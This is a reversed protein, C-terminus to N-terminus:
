IATRSEFLSTKIRIKLNFFSIFNVECCETILCIKMEYDQMHFFHEYYQVVNENNIKKMIEFENIADEESESSDVIKM